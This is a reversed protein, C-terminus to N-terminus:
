TARSDLRNARGRHIEYRSSKISRHSSRACGRCHVPSSNPSKLLHFRITTPMSFKVVHQSSLRLDWHGLFPTKKSGDYHLVPADLHEYPVELLENDIDFSKRAQMLQDTIRGKQTPISAIHPSSVPPAQEAAVGTNRVGIIELGEQDILGANAAPYRLANRIMYRTHQSELTTTVPQGPTIQLLCALIWQAGKESQERMLNEDYDDGARSHM